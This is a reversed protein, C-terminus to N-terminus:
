EASNGRAFTGLVQGAERVSPKRRQGGQRHKRRWSCRESRSGLVDTSRFARGPGDDKRVGCM